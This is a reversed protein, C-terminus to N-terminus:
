SRSRGFIQALDGRGARWLARALAVRSRGLRAALADPHTEGCALLWELDEITDARRSRKAAAAAATAATATATM